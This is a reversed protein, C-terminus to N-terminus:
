PLDLAAIRVSIEAVAGPTAFLAGTHPLVRPPYRSRTRIPPRWSENSILASPSM